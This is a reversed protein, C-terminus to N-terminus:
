AQIEYFKGGLILNPYMLYPFLNYLHFHLIFLSVMFMKIGLGQFVGSFKAAAPTGGKKEERLHLQQPFPDLVQQAAVVPGLYMSKDNDSWSLDKPLFQYAYQSSELSMSAHDPGGICCWSFPRLPRSLGFTM